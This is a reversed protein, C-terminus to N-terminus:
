NKKQGLVCTPHRHAPPAAPDFHRRAGMQLADVYVDIFAARVAGVLADRAEVIIITSSSRDTRRREREGGWKGRKISM